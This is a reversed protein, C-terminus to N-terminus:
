VTTVDLTALPMLGVPALSFLSYCCHKASPTSLQFLSGTKHSSASVVATVLFKLGPLISENNNTQKNQKNECFRIAYFCLFMFVYFHDKNM